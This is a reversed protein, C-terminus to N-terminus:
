DFLSYLKFLASSPTLELGHSTPSDVKLMLLGPWPSARGLGQPSPGPQLRFFPFDIKFKKNVAM